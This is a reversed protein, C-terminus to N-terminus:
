KEELYPDLVETIEDLFFLGDVIWDTNIVDQDANLVMRVIELKLRRLRLALDKPYIDKQLYQELRQIAEKEM